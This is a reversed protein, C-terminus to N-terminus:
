AKMAKRKRVLGIGALGAGFLVMTLPEPVPEATITLEIGSAFDQMFKRPMYAGLMGYDINAAMFLSGTGTEWDLDMLYCGESPFFGTFVSWASGAANKIDNYSAVGSFNFDPLSNGTPLPTGTIDRYNNYVKAEMGSNPMPLEPWNLGSIGVTWKYKVDPTAMIDHLTPSSPVYTFKFDVAAATNYRQGTNDYSFRPDLGFRNIVDGARDYAVYGNFDSATLSFAEASLPLLLAGAVLVATLTSALQKIM